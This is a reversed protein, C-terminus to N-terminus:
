VRAPLALGAPLGTQVPTRSNIASAFPMEIKITTGARPQSTITMLGETANTYDHLMRLGLGRKAVSPVFGKGDDTVTLTVAGDSTTVSVTAKTAEAHKLTNTLAEEAMRYLAVRLEESLLGKAELVEIRPDVKVEIDLVGGLRGALSMFAPQLGVAIISPHLQSSLSRLYEILSRLETRVESAAGANEPLDTKEIDRLRHCAVLLRTQVPGHLLSSVEKRVSEQSHFLRRHSLELDQTKQMREIASVTVQALTHRLHSMEESVDPEETFLCGLVGVVRREISLVNYIATQPIGDGSRSVAQSIRKVLPKVAEQHKLDASTIRLAPHISALSRLPEIDLAHLEGTEQDILHLTIFTAGCVDQSRKAVSAVVEALSAANNVALSVQQMAMLHKLHRKQQSFEKTRSVALRVFAWPIILAPILLLFGPDRRPGVVSVTATIMALAAYYLSLWKHNELWVSLISRETTLGIAGSVTVTNIIFYTAAALLAPKLTIVLGSPPTHGGAATYVAAAVGAALAMASFNFAVKMLPRRKPYVAHVLVVPVITLVAGGPGFWLLALFTFSFSLSVSTSSFLATTAFQSFGALAVLLLLESIGDAPLLALSM